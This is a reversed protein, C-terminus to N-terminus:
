RREGAIDRYTDPVVSSTGYIKVANMLAVDAQIAPNYTNLIGVIVSIGVLACGVDTGLVFSSCPPYIGVQASKGDAAVGGRVHAGRDIRIVERTPVAADGLGPAPTDRQQNLAYVLGRFTGNGRLVVRGRGIVLAKFAPNSAVDLRCFQDGPGGVTNATGTTGVQEIYVIKSSDAGEPIRCLPPNTPSTASVTGATSDVYTDSNIAQQKLQAISAESTATRSTAQVLKGGTVLTSIPPVDAAAALAGALCTPSAGPALDLVGCRIATVGSTPPTTNALPDPAVLPDNGLLAGTIPGLSGGLVADLSNTVDARMRGTMLGYKSSLAPTKGVRVLAALVRQRGAVTAQARIWMLDNANQDYNWSSLLADKWVTPGPNSPDDDCVNIQWTAGIYASDEYSANLNPQLRSTASGPNTAAGLTAGYGATGCAAATGTAGANSPAGAGSTPWAFQGLSVAGSSLASDALNFARDRTRESGSERAQTDVMTLLAIGIPLMVMMVLLAIVLASGEQDSVRLELRTLM